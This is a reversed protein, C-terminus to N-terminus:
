SSFNFRKWNTTLLRASRRKTRKNGHSTEPSQDEIKRKKKKEVSKNPSSVAENQISRIFNKRRTNSIYKMPIKLEELIESFKQWGAPNSAQRNSLADSILEIISSGDIYHNKIRVTGAHDWNILKSDTLINYLENAKSRKKEAISQLLEDKLLTNDGEDASDKVGINVDTNMSDPPSNLHIKEQQGDVIEQKIEKREPIKKEQHELQFTENTQSNNIKPTISIFHLYRRLTEQYRSLKENNDLDKLRLIQKMENRLAIVMDKISNSSLANQSKNLQVGTPVKAKSLRDLTQQDILVMKKTHNM